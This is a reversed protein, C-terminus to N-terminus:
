KKKRGKRRNNKERRKRAKRDSAAGAAQGRAHRPTGGGSDSAGALTDLAEMFGELEEKRPEYGAQVKEALDRIAKLQEFPM